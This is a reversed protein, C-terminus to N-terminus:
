ADSSNFDFKYIDEMASTDSISCDLDKIAGSKLDYVWGHIECSQGEKWAEQVISTEALHRVQEIVNFEVLLNVKDNMNEVEELAAQNLRYVDRINRIWKNLLGYDDHTMAASVGGCGYHGCVVIHPVKLHKVAYYLVSMLNFDTHVVMNAINRHVFMDGPKSGTVLSSPVRSDACGIWMVEPSQGKSMDEFYHRDESLKQDVWKNNKELIEKTFGM